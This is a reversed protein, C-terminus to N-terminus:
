TGVAGLPDFLTPILIVFCNRFNRIIPALGARQQQHRRRRQRLGGARLFDFCHRHRAPGDIEVAQHVGCGIELSRETTVCSNRSVWGAPWVTNWDSFM